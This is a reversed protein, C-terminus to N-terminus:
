QRRQAQSRRGLMAWLGVVISSSRVLSACLERVVAIGDSAFGHTCVVPFVSTWKLVCVIVSAYSAVLMNCVYLNVRHKRARACLACCLEQRRINIPRRNRNFQAFACVCAVFRALVITQRLEAHWDDRTCCRESSNCIAIMLARARM